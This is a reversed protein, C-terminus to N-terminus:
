RITTGNEEKIKRGMDSNNLWMEYMVFIWEPGDEYKLGDIEAHTNSLIFGTWNLLKFDM